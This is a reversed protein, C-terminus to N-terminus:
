NREIWLLSREGGGFEFPPRAKWGINGPRPPEQRTLTGPRNEGPCQLDHHGIYDLLVREFAPTDAQTRAIKLTGIRPKGKKGGNELLIPRHVEDVKLALHDM